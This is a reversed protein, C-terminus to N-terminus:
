DTITGVTIYIYIITMCYHQKQLQCFRKLLKEALHLRKDSIHNALLIRISKILLFVHVYFKDSLIESLTAPVFYFLFSKWESATYMVKYLKLSHGDLAKQGDRCQNQHERIKVDQYYAYM